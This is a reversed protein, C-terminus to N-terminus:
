RTLFPTRHWLDVPLLDFGVYSSIAAGDNRVYDVPGFDEGRPIHYLGASHWIVVPQGEISEPSDVSDPLDVYKLVPAVLQRDRNDPVLRSVWLDFRTFEPVEARLRGPKVTRLVYAVNRPPKHRNITTENTVKVTTYNDPKWAEGGEKGNNFPRYRLRSPRSSPNTVREVIEVRNAASDGLDFEMRWAGMHVHSARNLSSFSGDWDFFNQATGGIRASIRGDDSFIYLVIYTYNEIRFNAWLKLAQGRRLNFEDENDVWRVGDDVVESIVFGDEIAASIVGSEPLYHEQARLMYGAQGSIDLFYPSDSYPVYMEVMALHNLVTIWDQTGDGRTGKMFEISEFELVQSGGYGNNLPLVEWRIRWGSEAQPASQGVPVAPFFRIIEAANISNPLIWLVACALLGRQLLITGTTSSVM